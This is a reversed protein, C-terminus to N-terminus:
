NPDPLPVPLVKSQWIVEGQVHWLEAGRERDVYLAQGM